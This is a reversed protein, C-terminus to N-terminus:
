TVISPACASMAYALPMASPHRHHQGDYDVPLAAARRKAGQAPGDCARVRCYEMVMYYTMATTISILSRCSIRTVCSPSRQPKKKLGGLFEPDASLHSHILKIAVPGACTPNM